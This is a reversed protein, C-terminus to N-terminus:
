RILNQLLLTNTMSIILLKKETENVKTDYDAKKVLNSVNPIKNEVATLASSTVLGSIGLIETNVENIKINFISKTALNTIDPIKYEINKTKTNYETKKIVENKVANSLNSLDVPVPALKNIDLKDVKSKFNNLNNPLSKLKDIDM